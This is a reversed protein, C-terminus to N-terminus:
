FYRKRPEPKPGEYPILVSQDSNVEGSTWIINGGKALTRADSGVRIEYSKQTVGRQSSVIKWSFRPKVIDIGLPNTQYECTLDKVQIKQAVSPMTAAISFLFLFAILRM